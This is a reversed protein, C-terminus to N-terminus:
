PKKSMKKKAPLYRLSQLFMSKTLSWSLSGGASASPGFVDSNSLQIFWYLGLIWSVKDRFCIEKTPEGDRQCDCVRMFPIIRRHDFNNSMGLYHCDRAFYDWKDVDIGTDKNAVIQYLFRKTKYKEWRACNEKQKSFLQNESSNPNLAYTSIASTIGFQFSLQRWIHTISKYCHEAGKGMDVYSTIYSLTLVVKIYCLRLQKSIPNIALCTLNRKLLPLSCSKPGSRICKRKKEINFSMM